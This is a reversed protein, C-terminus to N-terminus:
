HTVAMELYNINMQVGSKTEYVGWIVKGSGDIYTPANTTVSRTMTADATGSITQDTGVQVWSANQTWDAGAKMIYIKHVTTANTHGNFTLDIKTVTSPVENVKMEVWLFIEYTSYPNFTTWRMLDNTGILSYEADTAEIM